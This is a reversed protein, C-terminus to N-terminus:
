TARALICSSFGTKATTSGAVIGSNGEFVLLFTIKSPTVINVIHM